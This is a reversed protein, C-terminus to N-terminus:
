GRFEKPAPVPLPCGDRDVAEGRLTDPCRDFCDTVGDGDSDQNGGCVQAPIIEAVRPARPPSTSCGAVFGGLLLLCLGAKSYREFAAM